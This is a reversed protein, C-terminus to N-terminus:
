LAAPRLTTLCAPRSEGARSDRSAAPVFSITDEAPSVPGQQMGALHFSCADPLLAASLKQTELHRVQVLKLGAVGSCANDVAESHHGGPSTPDLLSLLVAQDAARLRPPPRPHAAETRLRQLLRVGRRLDGGEGHHGGALHVGGHPAVPRHPERRRPDGAGGTSRRRVRPASRSQDVGKNTSHGPLAAERDGQTEDVEHSGSWM